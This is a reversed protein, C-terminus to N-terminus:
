VPRINDVAFPSGEGILPIVLSGYLLMSFVVSEESFGVLIFCLFFFVWMYMVAHVVAPNRSYSKRDSKM